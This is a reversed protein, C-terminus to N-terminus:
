KSPPHLAGTLLALLSTPEVPKTLVLVSDGSCKSRSGGGGLGAVLACTLNPHVMRALDFLEDGHMELAIEEAILARLPPSTRVADLASAIEPALVIRWGANKAVHAFLEALASDREILLVVPAQAPIQSSNPYDAPDFDPRVNSSALSSM